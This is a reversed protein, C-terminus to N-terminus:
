CQHPLKAQKQPTPLMVKKSVWTRNLPVNGEQLIVEYVSNRVTQLWKQLSTSQSNSTPVAPLLASGEFREKIWECGSLGIHQEKRVVEQWEFLLLIGVILVMESMVQM